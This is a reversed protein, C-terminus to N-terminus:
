QQKYIFYMDLFKKYLTQIKKVDNTTVKKNRYRIDDITDHIWRLEKDWYEKENEDKIIKNKFLIWSAYLGSIVTREQHAIDQILPYLANTMSLYAHNPSIAMRAHHFASISDIIKTEKFLAAIKDIKKIYIEDEIDIILKYVSVDGHVELSPTNLNIVRGLRYRYSRNGDLEFRGLFLIMLADIKTRFDKKRARLLVSLVTENVPREIEGTGFNFDIIINPNGKNEIFEIRSGGYEYTALSTKEIGWLGPEVTVIAKWNIIEKNVNSGTENKRKSRLM